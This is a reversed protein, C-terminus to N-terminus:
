LRLVLLHSLWSMLGYCLKCLRLLYQSFLPEQALSLFIIQATGSRLISIWFTLQKSKTNGNLMEIKETLFALMATKSPSRNVM